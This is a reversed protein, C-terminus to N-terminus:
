RANLLIYATSLIALTPALAPVPAIALHLAPDHDPVPSLAPAPVVALALALM